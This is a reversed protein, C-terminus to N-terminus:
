RQQKLTKPGTTSESIPLPFPGQETSPFYFIRQLFGRHSNRWAILEHKLASPLPIVRLKKGKVIEELISKPTNWSQRVYILDRALDVCDWTLGLVEGLRMGTTFLALYFTFYIRDRSDRGYKKNSYALFEDLEEQHYFDMESEQFKLQAVDSAPSTPIKKKKVAHTFVAKFHQIIKNVSSKTLGKKLASSIIEDFKVPDVRHAVQAGIFPQIYDRHMQDDKTLSSERKRSEASSRWILFIEDYTLELFEVGISKSKEIENLCEREFKEALARTRFGGKRKVRKGNHYVDAKWKTKTPEYYVTM